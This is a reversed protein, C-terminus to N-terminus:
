LDILNMPESQPKAAETADTATKTDSIPVQKADKSTTKDRVAETHKKRMRKSTRKKDSSDQKKDKESHSPAKSSRAKKEKEKEKSKSKRREKERKSGHSKDHKTRKEETVHRHQNSIQEPPGAPLAVPMFGGRHPDPIMLSHPKTSSMQPQQMMYPNYSQSPFASPHVPPYVPPYAHPHLNPAPHPMETRIPLPPNFEPAFPASHSPIFSANQSELSLSGFRHRVTEGPPSMPGRASPEALCAARLKQLEDTSGNTPPPPAAMVSASPRLTSAEQTPITPLPKAAQWTADATATQNVSAPGASPGVLQEFGKLAEELQTAVTKLSASTQNNRLHSHIRSRLLRMEDTLRRLDAADEPALVPRTNLLRLILQHFLSINELEVPNFIATTPSSPRMSPRESSTAHTTQENAPKVAERDSGHSASAEQLSAEIAQKLMAEEQQVVSSTTTPRQTETLSLEIARKLDPDDESAVASQRAPLDQVYLSTNAIVSRNATVPGVATKSWCTDCVRTPEVIGMDLLPMQRSSCLQCFTGGCKRCHHKRNTLTFEDRCRLCAPSDTWEPPAATTFISVPDLHDLVAPAPPFIVRHHTKLACYTDYLYALDADSQLLLAWVQFLETLRNQVM